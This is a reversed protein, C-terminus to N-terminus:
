HPPQEPSTVSGLMFSAPNIVGFGPSEFAVASMEDTVGFIVYKKDPAAAIAAMIIAGRATPEEQLAARVIAEAFHPAATVAASVIRAIIERALQRDQPSRALRRLRLAAAVIRGALEPRARVATAVYEPLTRIKAQAAVSVFAQLFQQPSAQDPTPAGATQLAATLEDVPTANSTAAIAVFSCVALAIVLSRVIPSLRQSM